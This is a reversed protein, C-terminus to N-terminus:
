HVTKRASTSSIRQGKDAQARDRQDDKNRQHPQTEGHLPPPEFFYTRQSETKTHGPDDDQSESTIPTALQDISIPNTHFGHHGRHSGFEM